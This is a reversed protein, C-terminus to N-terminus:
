DMGVAKRLNSYLGVLVHITTTLDNIRICDQQHQDQLEAILEDKEYDDDGFPLDEYDSFCSGDCIDELDKIRQRPAKNEIILSKKESREDNTVITVLDFCGKRIMEGAQETARPLLCNIYKDLEKTLVANEDEKDKVIKVLEDIRNKMDEIDKNTMRNKRGVIVCMVKMQSTQGIRRKQISACGRGIMMIHALQAVNVMM